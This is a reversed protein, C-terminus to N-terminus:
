KQEACVPCAHKWEDDRKLNKWGKKKMEARLDDFSYLDPFEESYSCFDCSVNYNAVDDTFFDQIKEIM